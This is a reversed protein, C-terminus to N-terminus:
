DLMIYPHISYIQLSEKPWEHLQSKVNQQQTRLDEKRMDETRVEEGAERATGKRLQEGHKGMYVEEWCSVM